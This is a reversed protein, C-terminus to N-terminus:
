AFLPSGAGSHTHWHPENALAEITRQMIAMADSLRHGLLWRGPHYPISAVRGAPAPVREAERQEKCIHYSRLAFHYM